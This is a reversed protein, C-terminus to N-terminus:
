GDGAKRDDTLLEARVVTGERQDITVTGGHRRCAMRTLALGFGHSRADSGQKTTWGLEFVRGRDEAAIGAGTDSVEVVIRDDEERLDVEVRGGVDVADFANDVLNGVVTVLDASLAPEQGGLCAHDALRFTIGREDARSAKAVLVSAVAPDEVQASMEGVRGDLDDMVTHVFERVQEVKGLEAMGAIAHLRNRFEHVQARLTDTGAHAAALEQELNLLETRDRMSTVWGTQGGRVQMPQTNLVLLRSGVAVVVDDGPGRGCLAAGVEPAIDLGKVSRGRVPPQLGLLADAEGSAFVVRGAMDVGIVGERVGHLMAERHEVLETIERPELGLTQRKVRRAILLSGGVGIGAALALYFLVHPIDSRLVELRSPYYRGLVLYGLVVGSKIGREDYADDSLVAVQAEIAKRGVRDHPGAWSAGGRVDARVALDKATAGPVSTALVHGDVAVLAVYSAGVAVRVRELRVGVPGKEHVVLADRVVREAATADATGLVRRETDTRFSQDAQVTSVWGVAGVVLVVMLMQLLLLQRALSLRHLSLATV